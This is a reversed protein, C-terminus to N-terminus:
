RPLTRAMVWCEVHSAGSKKLSKALAHMSAGTTMVDDMIAVRLGTLDRHCRFAGKMNEARLKLPLSAQPPTMKIRQTSQADVPIHLERGLVRAIELSQNFGRAKLREPHLPVPIILDPQHTVMPLFLQAFLEAMALVEAYKYQQLLGAIPYEYRFLALTTDFAPPNALCDGCVQAHLTSLGCQPCQDSTHWPLDLACPQCIGVNGGDADLCLLCHPPFLANSLRHTIRNFNLWKNIM